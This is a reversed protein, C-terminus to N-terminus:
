KFHKFIREQILDQIAKIDIKTLYMFPRGMDANEKAKRINETGTVEVSVGDGNIKYELSDIMEGTKTLNSKAPTTDGSLVGKKRLRKREKKYPESLEKLKKARGGTKSAAKGLRTRLKINDRVMRGVEEKFDKSQLDKVAKSVSKKILDSLGM